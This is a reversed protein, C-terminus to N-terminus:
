SVVKQQLGDQEGLESVTRFQNQSLGARAAHFILGAHRLPLERRRRHQRYRGVSRGPSLPLAPPHAGGRRGRAELRHPARPRPGRRDVGRPRVPRRLHGAGPRGPLPGHGPGHVPPLLGADRGARRGRRCRRGGDAGGGRLLRHHRPALHGRREVRPLAAAQRRRRAPPAPRPRERRPRPRHTRPAVPLDRDYDWSRFNWDPDGFVMYRMFDNAALYHTSRFPEPGTVWRSWGGPDDEGGPVLGPYIVEGAADTPGRWIDKVARVQKPTLCAAEDEGARCTLAAPDFDCARPDDLVGDEIGDIADCAATVARGLLVAKAPPIWSEPDDLTALAYWLHAGAYFRTWDHAPNGVVLGDFDDPYRQAEMLGQQGGKSCGVYYAHAPAAGYFAETIAKGHVATLHLSRHGFDDVLDPRGLAWGADFGGDGRVHGTDTSSTAYGRGLAGAMAGYSIVGAMGGNGATHFKGNWTDAPLWVEFNVAPASTAAVRCFAPVELPRAAGPPTFAGAPVAEALRIATEPLALGALAACSAPQAPQAAGAAQAAGRTSAATVALLAAAAAWGFLTMSRRTM